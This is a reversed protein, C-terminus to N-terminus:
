KNGKWKLRQVFRVIENNMVPNIELQKIWLSSNWIPSPYFLYEASLMLTDFSIM